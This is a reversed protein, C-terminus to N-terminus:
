ANAALAPLIAGAITLALVVYGGDILTLRFPRMAFLNSIYTPIFYLAWSITLGALAGGSVSTVSMASLLCALVYISIVGGVFSLGLFVGMGGKAKLNALRAEDSMRNLAMWQKGFLFPAYWLGGIVFYIAAAIWVALHNIHVSM